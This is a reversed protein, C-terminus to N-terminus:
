FVTRGGGSLVIAHAVDPPLGQRRPELAAHLDIELRRALDLAQEPTYGARELSARRLAVVREEDVGRHTSEHGSV